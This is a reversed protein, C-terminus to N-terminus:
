KQKESIKKPSASAKGQKIAYNAKKQAQKKAKAYKIAEKLEKDMNVEKVIKYYTM